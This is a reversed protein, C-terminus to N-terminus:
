PQHLEFVSPTVSDAEPIPVPCPAELRQSTDLETESLEFDDPEQPHPLATQHIRDLTILPVWRLFCRMMVRAAVEGFFPRPSLDVECM